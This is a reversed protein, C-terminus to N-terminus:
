VTKFLLQEFRMLLAQIGSWGATKKRQNVASQSIGIMEAINYENYGILLFNVVEASSRKWGSFIEELLLLEVYLEEDLNEIDSTFFILRKMKKMLDVTRGSRTYADGSSENVKERKNNVNGIGIAIRADIKIKNNQNPHISIKNLTTKLLLAVRLADKSESLEIQISDGRKIVYDQIFNVRYNKLEKHLNNLADMVQEIDNALLKTYDILDATIVAYMDDITEIVGNYM